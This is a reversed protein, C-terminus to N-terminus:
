LPELKLVGKRLSDFLFEIVRAAEHEEVFAPVELELKSKSHGPPQFRKTGPQVRASVSSVRANKRHFDTSLRDFRGIGRSKLSLYLIVQSGPSSFSSMAMM